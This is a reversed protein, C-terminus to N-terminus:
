IHILSLRDLQSKNQSGLEIYSVNALGSQSFSKKYRLKVVSGDAVRTGITFHDTNYNNVEIYTGTTTTAVWNDNTPSSSPPPWFINSSYKKYFINAASWNQGDDVSYEFIWWQKAHDGNQGGSTNYFQNTVWASDNICGNQITNDPFYYQYSTNANPKTEFQNCNILNDGATIHGQNYAQQSVYVFPFATTSWSVVEVYSVQYRWHAYYQQSLDSQYTKQFGPRSSADYTVTTNAPITYVIPAPSNDYISSSTYSSNTNFDESPQVRVYITVSENNQITLTSTKGADTCASM